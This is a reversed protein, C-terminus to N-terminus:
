HVCWCKKVSFIEANQGYLTNTHNKHIESCVSIIKKYLKLQSTKVANYFNPIKLVM